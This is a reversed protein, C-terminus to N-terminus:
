KKQERATTLREVRAYAKKLETDIGRVTRVLSTCGTGVALRVMESSRDAYADQVEKISELLARRAEDRTM